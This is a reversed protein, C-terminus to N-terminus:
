QPERMQPMFGWDGRAGRIISFRAGQEAAEPAEVGILVPVGEREFSLQRPQPAAPQIPTWGWAPMMAEFFQLVQGAQLARHSYFFMMGGDDGDFRGQEESGRPVPLGPIASEVAEMGRPAQGSTACAGLSMLLLLFLWKQWRNGRM